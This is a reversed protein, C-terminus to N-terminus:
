KREPKIRGVRERVSFTVVEFEKGSQNAIIQAMDTINKLWRHDTAILPLPGDATYWTQVVEGDDDSIAVIAHMDKIRFGNHENM